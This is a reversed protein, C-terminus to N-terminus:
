KVLRLQPRRRRRAPLVDTRAEALMGLSEDEFAGGLPVARLARVPTNRPELDPAVGDAAVDAGAAPTGLAADPGSAIVSVDRPIDENYLVGRGDESAIVYVASWPVVTQHPTRAFSLTASVGSEDVQLDPIPIPLNSGYQLVLHGEGKLHVPVV